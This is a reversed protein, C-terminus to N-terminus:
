REGRCGPSEEDGRIFVGLDCLVRGVVEVSAQHTHTNLKDAGALQINWGTARCQSVGASPCTLHSSLSISRSRWSFFLSGSIIPGFRNIDAIGSLFTCEFASM